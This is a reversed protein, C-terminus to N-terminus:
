AIGPTVDEGCRAYHIQVKREKLVEGDHLGPIDLEAPLRVVGGIRRREVRRRCVSTGRQEAADDASARSPHHLKSKTELKSRRTGRGDSEFRRAPLKEVMTNQPPYSSKRPIWRCLVM